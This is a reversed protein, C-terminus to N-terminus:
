IFDPPGTDATCAIGGKSTGAHAGKSLWADPNSTAPLRSACTAAMIRLHRL